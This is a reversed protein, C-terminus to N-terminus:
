VLRRGSAGPRAKFWASRGLSTKCSAPSRPSRALGHSGAPRREAFCPTSAAPWSSFCRWRSSSGCAGTSAALFCGPESPPWSSLGRPRDGSSGAPMETSGSPRWQGPSRSWSGSSERRRLVRRCPPKTWFWLSTSFLPPFIVSALPQSSGPRLTDRMLGGPPFPTFSAPLRPLGRAM